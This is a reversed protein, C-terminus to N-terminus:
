DAAFTALEGWRGSFAVESLPKRQRTATEAQRMKEPLSGADGPYGVAIATVPEHSEPIGLVDRAKSADFGAMQHAALGLSMAQLVLQSTALGVDHRAHRNPKANRDFALKAVSLMLVPAREAWAQNAPVLCDLLRRYEEPEERRAVIFTWPQENFASAAWQAAELLSRLEATEIPRDAFARPSWRERILEHVNSSVPAPKNM